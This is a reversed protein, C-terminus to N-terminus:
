MLNGREPKVMKGNGFVLDPEFLIIGPATTTQSSISIGWDKM